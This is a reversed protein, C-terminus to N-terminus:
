LLRGRKHERFSGCIGGPNIILIRPVRCHAVRISEIQRCLHRNRSRGHSYLSHAIIQVRDILDQRRASQRPPLRHFDSRGHKKGRENHEQAQSPVRLFYIKLKTSINSLKSICAEFWSLYIIRSMQSGTAPCTKVTISRSLKGHIM